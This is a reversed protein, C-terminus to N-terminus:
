KDAHYQFKLIYGKDGQGENSIFLDGTPSFCIGEPQRFIIVDLEKVALIEGSRSMITLLKGASSIIYIQGSLPHIAIGSPKFNTESETFGLKKAFQISFKTFLNHDIFGDLSDLNILFHPTKNLKEKELDFRYVAKYGEYLNEKEISPSGKCSILLSNSLADFALGETNNKENLPTQLKKVKLDKNEFNKVRFIQGNNKLIFATEGVIDIGEYDADEGFDYVNIIKEKEISFIYINANEDQICAIKDKGYYSLGSIEELYSPLIYKADPNTLDYAFFKNDTNIKERNKSVCSSGFVIFVVFLILRTKIYIGCTYLKNMKIFVTSCTRNETANEM